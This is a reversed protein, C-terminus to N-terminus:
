YNPSPSFLLYPYGTVALHVNFDQIQEPTMHDRMLDPIITEHIMLYATFDDDGIRPDVVMGVLADRTYEFDHHILSAAAEAGFWWDEPTESAKCRETLGRVREPARTALDRISDFFALHLGDSIEDSPFDVTPEFRRQSDRIGRQLLILQDDTMAEANFLREQPPSREREAPHSFEPSSM